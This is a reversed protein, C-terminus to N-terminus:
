ENSNEKLIKEIKKKRYPFYLSFTTGQCPISKARIGGGQRDLIYRCYYLGLGLHDMTTGKTSYYPQFLRRLEEKTMGTGNDSVTLISCGRTPHVDYCLEILGNNNLSLADAANALLNHIIEILHEQDAYIVAEKSCHLHIQISHFTSRQFDKICGNLVPYIRFATPVLRVDQSLFRTRELFNELHSVSRQLIELPVKQEVQSQESLASACWQIKTVENKLAHTLLLTNNSAALHEDQLSYIERYLRTGWIGNRFLHYLFYGLLFFIILINGQWLKFFGTLRFSHIPFVSLLWYWMPMLVNVTILLRQQYDHALRRRYLTQVLFFTIVAGFFLNYISVAVFYLPVELQYYRTQNYPFFLGFILGPLFVIYRFFSIKEQYIQASDAFYLAMILATPMSFYYLAATMVSYVQECFKASVPPTALSLLWPVVGFYLYEKLVGLSFLIGAGFCWRNMKNKPNSLLIAAFLLWLLLTFVLMWISPLGSKLLNTM